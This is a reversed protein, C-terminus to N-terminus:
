IHTWRKRSKIRSVQARGIGYSEAIKTQKRTDARIALVNAETLKSCGNKEGYTITGHSMKDLTNEQVTGWVLNDFHNNAPDGDLHRCEMGDPKPGVFAELVLHHVRKTYKKGLRSLRILQYGDKDSWPKLILESKGRCITSVVDGNDTIYYGPFGSVSKKM